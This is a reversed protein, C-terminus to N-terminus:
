CMKNPLVPESMLKISPSPFAIAWPFMSSSSNSGSLMACLTLSPFFGSAIAPVRLYLGVCVCVKYKVQECFVGPDNPPPVKDVDRVHALPATLNAQSDVLDCACVCHVCVGHMLCTKSSSPPANM